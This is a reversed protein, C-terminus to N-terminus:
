GVRRCTQGSDLDRSAAVLDTRAQHPTRFGHREILWQENYRRQTHDSNSPSLM